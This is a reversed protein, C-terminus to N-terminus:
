WYMGDGAEVLLDAIKTTEAFPSDNNVGARKMNAVEQNLQNLVENGYSFLEAKKTEDEQSLLKRSRPTNARDFYSTMQALKYAM